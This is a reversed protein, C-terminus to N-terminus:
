GVHYRPPEAFSSSYTLTSLIPLFCSFSRVLLIQVKEMNVQYSHHMGDYSSAGDSMPFYDIYRVGGKAADKEKSREDLLVPMVKRYADVQAAGQVPQYAPQLKTDDPHHPGAWLNLPVPYNHSLTSFLTDLYSFGTTSTM